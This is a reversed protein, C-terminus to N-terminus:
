ILCISLFHPMTLQHVSGLDTAIVRRWLSAPPLNDDSFIQNLRECRPHGLPCKRTNDAFIVFLSTSRTGFSGIHWALTHSYPYLPQQMKWHNNHTYKSQLLTTLRNSPGDQCRHPRYPQCRCLGDWCPWQCKWTKYRTVSEHKQAGM